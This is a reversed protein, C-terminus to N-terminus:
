GRIWDFEEKLLLHHKDLVLEKGLYFFYVPSLFRSEDLVLNGQIDFIVRPNDAILRYMNKFRVKIGEENTSKFTPM